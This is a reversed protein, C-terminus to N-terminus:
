RGSSSMAGVTGNVGLTSLDFTTLAYTTDVPHTM